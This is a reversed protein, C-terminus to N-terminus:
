FSVSRKSRSKQSTHAHQNNEISMKDLLHYFFDRDPGKVVAAEHAESLAIPYGNGKHCQDIIIHAIQNTLETDQAIWQPIEVRGIETGVNIYFFHPRLHTPYQESIPANNQFTITREQPNLFFNAITADFVQELTQNQAQKPDFDALALRLVNVLERSKPLSIYGAFPIKQQYMLDLASIYEQLFHDQLSSEKSELLWFILSGDFLLLFPSNGITSKLQAGQKLGENFELEQRRCNVIDTSIHESQEEHATFISPQSYLKVSSQPGYHFAISGINILFCSQGQHRDPYIQSGDVSLIHYDTIPQNVSVTTGIPGQWSPLAFPAQTAAIRSALTDDLALHTWAQQARKIISSRDIFLSDAVRHLEQALKSRDLM